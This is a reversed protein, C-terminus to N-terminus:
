YLSQEYLKFMLDRDAFVEISEITGGFNGHKIQNNYEMGIYRDFRVRFRIYAPRGHRQDIGKEDLMKLYEKALDENARIFSLKFPTKITLVAARPYGDLHTIDYGGCREGNDMRAAMEMRTSAEFNSGAQLPFGKLDFNYRDLYIPQIYEFKRPFNSKYKSLYARTAQRIKRWEFENTYFRTFLDCETIKLFDDILQDNDTSYVNLAWFLRSINSFTPPAYTEMLEGKENTQQQVSPPPSATQAYSATSVLLLAIFALITKM